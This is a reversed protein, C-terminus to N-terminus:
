QSTQLLVVIVIALVILIVDAISIRRILRLLSDDDSVSKGYAIGLYGPVSLLSFKPSAGKSALRSYAVFSAITRYILSAACILALVAIIKTM